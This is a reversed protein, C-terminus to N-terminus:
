DPENRSGRWLLKLHIGTLVVEQCGSGALMSVENLVDDMTRSRVRGRAFPIICYTCFQNCGDQVKIDARTRAESRDLRSIRMNKQTISTLRTWSFAEKYQKKGATSEYEGLM